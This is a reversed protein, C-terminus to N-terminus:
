MEEITQKQINKKNTTKIYDLIVKVPLLYQKGGIRWDGHRNAVCEHFENM